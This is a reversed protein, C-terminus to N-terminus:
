ADVLEVPNSQLLYSLPVRHFGRVEQDDFHEPGGEKPMGSAMIADVAASCAPEITWGQGDALESKRLGEYAKRLVVDHEEGLKGADLWASINPGAVEVVEGLPTARLVRAPLLKAGFDHSPRTLRLNPMVSGVGAWGGNVRIIFAGLEGDMMRGKVRYASELSIAPDVHRSMVGILNRRYLVQRTAPHQTALRAYLANQELDEKEMESFPQLIVSPSQRFTEPVPSSM